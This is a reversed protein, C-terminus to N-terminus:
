TAFGDRDRFYATVGEDGKLDFWFEDCRRRVNYGSGYSPSTTGDLAKKRYVMMYWPADFTFVDEKILYPNENVINNGWGYQAGAGEYLLWPLIATAYTPPDDEVLYEVEVGLFTEHQDGTWDVDTYVMKYVLRGWNETYRTDYIGQGTQYEDYYRVNGEADQLECQALNYVSYLFGTKRAWDWAEPCAKTHYGVATRPPSETDVLYGRKSMGMQGGILHYGYAECEEDTDTAPVRLHGENEEAKWVYFIENKNIRLIAVLSEKMTPAVGIIYPVDTTANSGQNFESAEIADQVAESNYLTNWLKHFNTIEDDDYKGAGNYLKRTEPLVAEITYGGNTWIDPDLSYTEVRPYTELVGDPSWECATVEIPTDGFIIPGGDPATM